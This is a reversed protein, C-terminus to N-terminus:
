DMGEDDRAEKNKNHNVVYDIIKQKAELKNYVIYKLCSNYGTENYAFPCGECDNESHRLCIRAYAELYQM